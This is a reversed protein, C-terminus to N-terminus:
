VCAAPLHYILIAKLRALRLSKVVNRSHLGSPSKLSPSLVCIFKTTAVGCQCVTEYINLLRGKANYCLTTLPFICATGPCCLHQPTFLATACAATLYYLPPRQSVSLISLQGVALTSHRLKPIHLMYYSCIVTYDCSIYAM